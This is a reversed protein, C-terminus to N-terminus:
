MFICQTYREISASSLSCKGEGGRGGGGGYGRKTRAGNLDVLHADCALEIIYQTDWSISVRCRVFCLLCVICFYHVRTIVECIMCVSSM